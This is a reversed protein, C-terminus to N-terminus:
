LGWAGILGIAIGVMMTLMASGLVSKLITSPQAGLAMRIGIEQTRQSVVYGIVGYIGVSAISLGLAGFLALLLM